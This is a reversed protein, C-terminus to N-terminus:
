TIIASMIHSEILRIAFDYNEGSHGTLVAVLDHEPAVVIFQGQYGIGLYYGRHDIWWQFGYGDKLTADTHKKTAEKVWDKPVIQEGDWEGEHLFLYGFKAMEHPTLYIEAYGWPVGNRDTEWQLDEIGIPNFLHEEAFEDTPVGTKLTVLNSLVHSVGNTYEFRSGPEDSMPLDLVYQLPDEADWMKYLGEWDYLYSDRANFDATMTLLNYLTIKEKRDDMNQITHDPFLESLTMDLGDIYGKEIAIGVLTSVVSKTCSYIYHKQDKKFDGFYEDLVIYGHRIVTVSDVDPGSRNIFKVLDELKEEDMDVDSPEAYRWGDTPWYSDLTKPEPAPPENTQQWFNIGIAAVVIIVIALIRLRSFPSEM